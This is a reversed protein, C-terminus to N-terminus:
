TCPQTHTHTHTDTHTHTHTKTHTHTHTQTDTHTHTHRHTHKHTHTQTHTHTVSKTHINTHTYTYGFLFFNEVSKFFEKKGLFTHVRPTVHAINSTELMVGLQLFGIFRRFVPNKPSGVCYQSSKSISKSSFPVLSDCPYYYSTESVIGLQLFGSLGDFVPNKPSRLCIQQKIEVFVPVFMYFVHGSRLIFFIYVLLGM